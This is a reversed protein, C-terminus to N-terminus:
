RGQIRYIMYSAYLVIFLIGSFRYFRSSKLVILFFLFSVATVAGYDMTVREDALLHQGSALLTGGLVLLINFINSGVLNGVAISTEGRRIAIVSAMVDPISTGIAVITLGIVAESVGLHEAIRISCYLILEGGGYLMGIGGLFWLIGQWLQKRPKGNERHNGHSKKLRKSASYLYLGLLAAFLLCTLFPLEGGGPYITFAFLVIAPTLFLFILDYLYRQRRVFVAGVLSCLGFGLCLNTLNSGSVNSLAFSTHDRYAAVLNVFLEPSSTGFAVLTLGVVVKSVNLYLAISTAGRILWEAGFYLIVFGPMVLLVPVLM